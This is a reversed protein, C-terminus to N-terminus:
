ELISFGLRRLHREVFELLQDFNAYDISDWRYKPEVDNYFQSRVVDQFLINKRFKRRIAAEFTKEPFTVAKPPRRRKAKKLKAEKYHKPM